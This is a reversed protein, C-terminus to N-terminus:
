FPHVLRDVVISKRDDFDPVRARVPRCKGFVCDAGILARDRASEFEGALTGGQPWGRHPIRLASEAHRVRDGGGHFAGKELAACAAIEKENRKWDLNSFSRGNEGTQERRLEEEDTRFRGRGLVGWPALAM